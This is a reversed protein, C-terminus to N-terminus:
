FRTQLSLHGSPLGASCQGADVSGFRRCGDTAQEYSSAALEETLM